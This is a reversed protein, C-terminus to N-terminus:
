TVNIKPFIIIKVFLVVNIIVTMYNRLVTVYYANISIVSDIRLLKRLACYIKKKIINRSLFLYCIAIKVIWFISRSM